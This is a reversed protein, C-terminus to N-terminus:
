SHSTGPELDGRSMFDKCTRKVVTNYLSASHRCLALLHSFRATYKQQGGLCQYKSGKCAEFVIAYAKSVQQIEKQM